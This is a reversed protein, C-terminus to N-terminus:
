VKTTFPFFVVFCYVPFPCRTTEFKHLAHHVLCKVTCRLSLYSTITTKTKKKCYVVRQYSFLTHIPALM